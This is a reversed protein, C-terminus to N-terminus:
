SKGEQKYWTLFANIKEEFQNVSKWGSQELKITSYKRQPDINSQGVFKLVLSLLSQPLSIRPFLYDNMGLNEMMIKEVSRYNNSEKNDEAIIFIENKHNAELLTLFFIAGVVNELVRRQLDMQLGEDPRAFVLQVDKLQDQAKIYAELLLDPGKISNLRGFYFWRSIPCAM